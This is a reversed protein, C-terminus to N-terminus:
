ASGNKINYVDQSEVGHKNYLISLLMHGSKVKTPLSQSATLTQVLKIADNALLVTGGVMEFIDEPNERMKIVEFAADELIPVATSVAQSSFNIGAVSCSSLVLGPLFVLLLTLRAFIRKM